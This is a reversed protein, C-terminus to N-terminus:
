LVGRLGRQRLRKPTTRAANRQFIAGQTEDFVIESGAIHHHFDAGDYQKEADRKQQFVRRLM